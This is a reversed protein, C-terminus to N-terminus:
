GSGRRLEELVRALHAELQPQFERLRDADGVRAAAEV